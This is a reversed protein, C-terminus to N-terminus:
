EDGKGDAELENRRQYLWWIGALLGGVGVITPPIAEKAAHTYSPYARTGIYTPFGLKAFPVAALYLMATGGAEREGCIHDVYKDPEASIRARAEAILKDREGFQLAGTSCAKVCSPMKQTEVFRKESEDSLPRENYEEPPGANVRRDHCFTCKRVFPIVKEWEFAPVGFPCALMCYRCGICKKDDYVVSGDDARTLAGVICASACAPELCHMCQRKSFVWKLDGKNDVVENFEVLSFTKASLDSPNQYGGHKTNFGTKEGPLNNWQKCAVQCARCGICRTTDILCANKM